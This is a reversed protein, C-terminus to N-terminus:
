KSLFYKWQVLSVRKFFAKKHLNLNNQPFTHLSGKYWACNWVHEASLNEKLLLNRAFIFKITHEDPPIIIARFAYNAKNCTLLIM